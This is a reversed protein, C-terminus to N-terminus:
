FTGAKAKPVFISHVALVAPATYAAHKALEALAHRRAASDSSLVEEKSPPIPETPKDHELKGNTM